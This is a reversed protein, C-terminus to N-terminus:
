TRAHRPLRPRRHDHDAVAETGSWASRRRADAPRRAQPLAAAGPARLEAHVRPAGYTGTSAEHM